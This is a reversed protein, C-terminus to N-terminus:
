LENQEFSKGQRLRNAESHCNGNQRVTARQKNLINVHGHFHIVLLMLSACNAHLSHKGGATSAAGRGAAMRFMKQLTEEIAEFKGLEM